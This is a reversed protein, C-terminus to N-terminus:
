LCKGCERSFLIGLRNPNDNIFEKIYGTYVRPILGQDQKIDVFVISDDYDLPPEYIIDDDSEVTNMDLDASFSNYDLEVTGNVVFGGGNPTDSHIDEDQEDLCIVEDNIDQNQCSDGQSPVQMEESAEWSDLVNWTSEDNHVEIVDPLNQVNQPRSQLSRSSNPLISPTLSVARDRLGSM